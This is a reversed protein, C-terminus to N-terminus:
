EMREHAGTERLDSPTAVVGATTEARPRYTWFRIVLFNFTVVIAVAIAQTIVPLWNLLLHLGGGILLTLAQGVAYASHFRLCRAPWSGATGALTHFTLRDNVLFSYFIGIETAVLWAPVYPWHLLSTLSGFIGLNLITSSGGVLLFNRLRSAEARM